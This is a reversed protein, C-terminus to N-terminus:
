RPRRPGSTVATRVSGNAEREARGALELEMVAALVDAAALGTARVLVDVPMPTMSLATLVAEGAGDAPARLRPEEPVDADAAFGPSVTDAYGAGLVSLVDRADTVLTAGDKLLQLCGAARPDLPSGPVAFVERHAALAFAATHLSGSRGAAEVVVVGEGLGAILRNRRVFYRAFSETGPPMESILAGRTAIDHALDRHADPTPRDVGGALVAITGTSLSARHAEADIGLALGSVVTWGAAGFEEALTRAITRGAASAKRSGVVAVTRRHALAIDGRVTLVPPPGDIRTLAPPYDAEGLYVHRVGTRRAQDLERAIGVESAVRITRRMGGARALDPLADLAARATGFRRMLAHFTDPGVNESRILRLWDAREADDHPPRM